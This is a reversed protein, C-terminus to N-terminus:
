LIFVFNVQYASDALKASISLLKELSKKKQQKMFRAVQKTQGYNCNPETPKPFSPYDNPEYSSVDLTKAPSLIMIIGETNVDEENKHSTSSM